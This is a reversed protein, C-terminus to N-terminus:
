EPNRDYSLTVESSIAHPQLQLDQIKSLWSEM